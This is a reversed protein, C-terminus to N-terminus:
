AARGEPTPIATRQIKTRSAPLRSLHLNTAAYALAVVATFKVSGRLHIAKNKLNILDPNKVLSYGREVSSREAYKARWKRSGRQPVQWSTPARGAEWVLTSLACAEDPGHEGPCTTLGLDRTRMTHRMDPHRCGVSKPRYLQVKGPGLYQRVKWAYREQEDVAATWARTREALDGKRGGVPKPLPQRLREPLAPSYPWGGVIPLGRYTGEYGGEDTDFDFIPEVGLTRLTANLEQSKIGRDVALEKIAVGDDILREVMDVIHPRDHASATDVRLADVYEHDGQSRVVTSIAYGFIKKEDGNPRKIRRGSADPDSARDGADFRERAVPSCHADVYTTDASYLPEDDEPPPASESLIM